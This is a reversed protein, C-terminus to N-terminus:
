VSTALFSRGCGVDILDLGESLVLEVPEGLVESRRKRVFRQRGCLRQVEEAEIETHGGRVRLDLVGVHELLGPGPVNGVDRHRRQAEVQPQREIQVHAHHRPAYRAAVHPLDSSCM